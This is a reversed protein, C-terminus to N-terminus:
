KVDVKWIGWAGGRNSRFYIADGLPGWGPADDWSGNTTLQRPRQPNKMDILWIDYNRRGEDDAGANSAVAIAGGDPAWVADCEDVDPTHTLNLAPGGGDPIQFVDRKNTKPDPMAYIVSDGRPSVRPQSAGTEGLDTRTNGGVRASYLRPQSRTDFLAQYFVRPKPDADLSPWLDNSEGDTLQTAGAGAGGVAASWISLRRGNRNSAFVVQVGDPSFSPTLEMAEPDTALTAGPAADTGIMSVKLKLAGEAPLSVLGYAIQTGDPSVSLSDISWGAPAEAVRFPAKGGRKPPGEGTDKIATTTLSEGALRWGNAAREPRWRVLPVTRTKVEKLAVSYDKRGGDWAIEVDAPEWIRDGPAKTVSGTYRKLNGADDVPPFQLRAASAGAADRALEVGDIKVTAGPPDTVIRVAKSKATLDIVYDTRGEDWSITLEVDDYGPRTVRVKHPLFDGTDPDVPFAFGAFKIPSAGLTQGDVFVQAGSPNTRINLDKKLPELKLEVPPPKDSFTVRQTAPQWGRREATVTHTTWNNKGDLTFELEPTAQSVPDASLPKGDVSVVAPVPSVNLTVRRTLPRLKIALRPEAPLDLTVFAEEDKYGPRSAVVRHSQGPSSFQFSQVLRGREVGGVSIAADPPQTTILITRSRACGTSLAALTLFALALTTPFPTTSTPTVAGV